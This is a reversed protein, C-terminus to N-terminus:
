NEVTVFKKLIERGTEEAYYETHTFPWVPSQFDCDGFKAKIMDVAADLANANCGLIGIILKVPDPKKLEWM